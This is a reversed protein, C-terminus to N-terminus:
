SDFAGMFHRDPGAGTVQLSFGRIRYQRDRPQGSLLVVQAGGDCVQRAPGINWRNNAWYEGWIMGCGGIHRWGDPRFRLYGGGCKTFRFLGTVHTENSADWTV